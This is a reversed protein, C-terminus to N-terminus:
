LPGTSVTLSMLEALVSHTTHIFPLQISSDLFESLTKTTQPADDDKGTAVSGIVWYDHDSM